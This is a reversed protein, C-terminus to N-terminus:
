PYLWNCCWEDGVSARTYLFREHLRFEGQSWFEMRDPIVRFGTWFPPRPIDEVGDFKTSYDDVAKALDGHGGDMVQTQKSAWAGIRSGRHRSNYYADAQKDSVQEIRGTIRIQKELSKWHFCLEADPTKSIGKGKRSEMNTYFVFGNEDHDKLLVMRVSPRDNEDIVALAMANPDNIESSTAKEFWEGFLTFPNLNEPHTIETM